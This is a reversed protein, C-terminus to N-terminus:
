QARVQAADNIGNQKLTTNARNLEESSRYPGLRVRYYMGKGPVDASHVSAEMGALALRAKLKDAEDASSFSGAQLFYAAAGASAPKVAQEKPQATSTASHGPNKPVAGDKDTLIKYFEFRPKTDGVSSAAPAPTQPMPQAAPKQAPTGPAAPVPAASERQEKNTFTNPRKSIHWAVGGAILLGLVMGVLIGLILSSNNGPASSRSGGHNAM